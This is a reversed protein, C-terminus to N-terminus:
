FNIAWVAEPEPLTERGTSVLVINLGLMGDTQAVWMLNYFTMGDIEGADLINALTPMICQEGFLWPHMEKSMRGEMTDETWREITPGNTEAFPDSANFVEYINSRMKQCALLMNRVHGLAEEENM